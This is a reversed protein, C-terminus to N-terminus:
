VLSLSLFLLNCLGHLYEELVGADVEAEKVCCDKVLRKGHDAEADLVLDVVSTQLNREAEPVPVVGTLSVLPDQLAPVVEGRGDADALEVAAPRHFQCLLDLLICLMHEIEVSRDTNLEIREDDHLDHCVSLGQVQFFTLLDAEIIVLRHDSEKKSSEYLLEIESRCLRCQLEHM